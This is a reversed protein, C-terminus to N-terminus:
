DGFSWEKLPYAIRLDEGDACVFVISDNINISDYAKKSVHYNVGGFFLQYAVITHESGYEGWQKDTCTREFFSIKINKEIANKLKKRRQVETDIATWTLLGGIVAFLAVGLLFMWVVYIALLLFVVAPLTFIFAMVFLSISPKENQAQIEKIIDLKSVTKKKTECFKVDLWTSSWHQTEYSNLRVQCAQSSANESPVTQSNSLSSDAVSEKIDYIPEGGKEFADRRALEDSENPTLPDHMAKAFACAGIIVLILGGLIALCCLLHIWDSEEISFAGGCVTLVAGVGFCIGARTLKGRMLRKRVMGEIIHPDTEEPHLDRETEYAKEIKMKQKNGSKNRSGFLFFAGQIMVVIIAEAPGGILLAIIFSFILFIAVAM